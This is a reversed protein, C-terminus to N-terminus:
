NYRVPLVPLHKKRSYIYEDPTVKKRIRKSEGMRGSGWPSPAAVSAEERGSRGGRGYM